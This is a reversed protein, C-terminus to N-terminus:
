SAQTHAVISWDRVPVTVLPGGADIVPGIFDMLHTDGSADQLLIQLLFAPPVPQRITLIPGTDVIKRRSGRRAHLCPEQSRSALLLAPGLCELVRLRLCRAQLRSQSLTCSVHQVGYAISAVVVACANGLPSVYHCEIAPFLVRLRDFAIVQMVHATDAGVVAMNLLLVGEPVGEGFSGWGFASQLAVCYGTM